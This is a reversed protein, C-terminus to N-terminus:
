SKLGKRLETLNPRILADSMGEKDEKFHIACYLFFTEYFVLLPGSVQSLVNTTRDRFLM